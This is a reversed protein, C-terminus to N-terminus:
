QLHRDSIDQGVTLGAIYDWADAEAVRDATRGVVAVLEVEWDNNEGVIAIDDYPGALSSPFKTFVVPVPPL